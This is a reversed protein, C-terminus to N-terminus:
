TLATLDNDVWGDDRTFYLEHVHNDTGISNVHKSDDSLPYGDLATAPTPPVAGALTTLDNDAWGASSHIYLEHVHNDTGIYFVHQSDDSLPYGDLATTPTPPVAGAQTTLNNDAWGASSHIYLEHIHNDTGIYFVHQSDDSLRHSHLTSTTAPPVAGALTTLDNDAWRGGRAIFLEHIHNDTGIFFVHKSDDGLAYGDLTTTAAPLVTRALSTLDNFIWGAGATVYLEYVHNDTGIFFVHQSDDSLRFGEIASTVTPPVAGAETTLDNDVWAAGATVYLEHVHKDTGIYNVHQSNNSLRYGELVSGAVPL